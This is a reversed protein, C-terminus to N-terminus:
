GYSEIWLDVLTFEIKSFWGKYHSIFMMKIRGYNAKMGESEFAKKWKRFKNKLEEITVSMLVLNDAYLM